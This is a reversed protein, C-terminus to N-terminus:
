PLPQLVTNNLFPGQFSTAEGARKGPVPFLRATLPKSWRASLSAVDALIRTLQADTVDGPLPVTDLGTGCVSSYSLLADISLHGEGWRQALRSDELVPLMLGQLGVRKVPVSRVAGTVIAAATLTGSGGLQGGTFAELAAGISAFGDFPAPTTDIGQYAWGSGSAADRALAEVAAAHTTLEALLRAGAAAPDWGTAAFVEAVVGASELGVSFRRAPGDHWSAPYFPAYPEVLATAAFNFNGQGEPSNLELYRIVKVSEALVGWQIRPGQPGPAVLHASGNTTRATALFRALLTMMAPDDGDGRMAPGVDLGYGGAVALADLEQLFALAADPALGAVYDPFPQTTIRVSEVVQGAASFQSRARDLFAKAEALQARYQVRDLRTFATITRVNPRATAARAAPAALLALALAAGSLLAALRRPM